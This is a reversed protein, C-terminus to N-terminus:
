VQLRLRALWTRAALFAVGNAIYPEVVAVANASILANFNATGSVNEGAALPIRTQAGALDCWETLPRDARLPEELWALSFDELQAVARSADQVSWAQNADAMLIADAGLERRLANLNTVDRELGFGVKLKFATYGEARKAAALREPATPNIGSAYVPVPRNVGGLKHWLPVGAKRAALDWLAIDIGAIAQSIPGPEGAQIALVDTHNSLFRFAEYPQAFSNEALLPALIREAVRARYEAGIAPFNCWIEGWGVAGSYDEVRVLVMPRDHMVGFSTVVPVEIPWRYVFTQLSKINLETEASRHVVAESTM